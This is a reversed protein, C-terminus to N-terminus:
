FPPKENTKGNNWHTPMILTSDSQKVKWGNGDPLEPEIQQDQALWYHDAFLYDTELRNLLLTKLRGM